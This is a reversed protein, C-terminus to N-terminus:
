PSADESFHNALQNRLRERARFVRADVASESIELVAAIRSYTWRQQYKLVLIEADKGSLQAMARRVLDRREESLLWTLPDGAGWTHGNSKAALREVKRRHRAQQRRFRIAQVVALRYLWASVRSPDTLPAVQELAALSVEQWVDDVCQPEGTRALIVARLWECHTALCSAWDVPHVKAGNSSTHDSHPMTECTRPPPLAPMWTRPLPICLRDSM